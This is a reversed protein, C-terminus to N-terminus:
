WGGLIHIAFTTQPDSNNLPLCQVDTGNLITSVRDILLEAILPLVGAESIRTFRFATDPTLNFSSHYYIGNYPVNRTLSQTINSQPLTINWKLLLSHNVTCVLRLQKRPCVSV